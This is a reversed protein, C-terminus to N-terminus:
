RVVVPSTEVFVAWNVIADYPSRTCRSNYLRKAEDVVTFDPGVAIKLSVSERETRVIEPDIFDGEIVGGTWVYLLAMPAVRNPPCGPSRVTPTTEFILREATRRAQYAPGLLFVSFIFVGDDTSNLIRWHLLGEAKSTRAIEFRIKSADSRRRPQGYVTLTLLPVVVAIAPIATVRWFRHFRTVAM